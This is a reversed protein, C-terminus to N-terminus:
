VVAALSLVALAPADFLKLREAVAARITLPLAGHGAHADVHELANKLLEEAFFPNGDSREIIEDIDRRALRARGDLTARVFRQMDPVGLPQLAIRVTHPDRALRAIYPTAVHARHLEDSRYTAVVLLRQTALSRLVHLLFAFSAEDAWQVDELLLVVNRSACTTALREALAALQEARTREAVIPKLSGAGRLAEIIAGYPLNAFEDYGGAGVTARGGALTERFARLLRTKGVGADGSILVFAGHGAAAARRREALAELEARRGILEPCVLASVLM